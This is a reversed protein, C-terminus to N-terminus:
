SESMARSALSLIADMVEVDTAAISFGNHEAVVSM